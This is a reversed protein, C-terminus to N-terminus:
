FVWARSSVSVLVEAVRDRIAVAIELVDRVHRVALVRPLAEELVAGEVMGVQPELDGERLAPLRLVAGVRDHRPARLLVRDDLEAQGPLVGGSSAARCNRECCPIWGPLVDVDLM